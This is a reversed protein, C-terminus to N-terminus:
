HVTQGRKTCLRSCFAPTLGKVRGALRETIGASKGDGCTSPGAAVQDMTQSFPAGFQKVPNTLRLLLHILLPRGM